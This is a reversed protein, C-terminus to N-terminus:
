LGKRDSLKVDQIFNETAQEEGKEVLFLYLDTALTVAVDFSKVSSCRVEEEEGESSEEEELAPRKAQDSDVVVISCLKETCDAGNFSSCTSLDEEDNM